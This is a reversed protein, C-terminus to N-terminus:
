MALCKRLIFFLVFFRECYKFVVLYLLALISILGMSYLFEQALYFGFLRNLELDTQPIFCSGTGKFPSFLSLSILFSLSSPTYSTTSCKDLIRMPRFEARLVVIFLIFCSLLWHQCITYSM